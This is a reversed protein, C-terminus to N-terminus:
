KCVSSQPLKRFCRLTNFTGSENEDQRSDYDLTDLVVEERVEPSFMNDHPTLTVNDSDSATISKPSGNTTPEYNEIGGLKMDADLEVLTPPLRKPVNFRLSKGPTSERSRNQSFNSTAHHSRLKPSCDERDNEDIQAKLVDTESDPILNRHRQLPGVETSFENNDSPHRTNKM